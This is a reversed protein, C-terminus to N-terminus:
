KSGVISIICIKKDKQAVTLSNEFLDEYIRRLISDHVRYIIKMSGTLSNSFLFGHLYNHM